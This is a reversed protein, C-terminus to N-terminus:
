WAPSNFALLPPMVTLEPLAPIFAFDSRLINEQVSPVQGAGSSSVVERKADGFVDLIRLGPQTMKAALAQTYLSTSRSTLPITMGPSTSFALLMDPSPSEQITLGSTGGAIPTDITTGAEVILIKLRAGARELGHQMRSLHYSRNEMSGPSEPEFDVPLLYNDDDAVQAAYGSYYFVVTDGPQVSRLFPEEYQTLFAPFRMDTVRKVEFGAKTLTDAMLRADNAPSSLPPLKHYGANAVVLALRRGEAPRTQALVSGAIALLLVVRCLM